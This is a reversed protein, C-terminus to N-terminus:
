AADKSALDSLDAADLLAEALLRAEKAKLYLNTEGAQFIREEPPCPETFCLCINDDYISDDPDYRINIELSGDLLRILM